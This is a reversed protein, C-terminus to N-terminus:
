RHAAKKVRSRKQCHIVTGTTIAFITFANIAPQFWVKGEVRPILVLLHGVGWFLLVFCPVSILAGVALARWM